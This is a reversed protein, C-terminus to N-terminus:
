TDGFTTPKDTAAITPGTTSGTVMVWYTGSTRYFPIASSLEKIGTRYRDDEIREASSPAVISVKLDVIFYLVLLSATRILQSDEEKMQKLKDAIKNAVIVM